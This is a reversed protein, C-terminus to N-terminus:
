RRSLEDVILLAVEKLGEMDEAEAIMDFNFDDMATESSHAKQEPTLESEWGGTRVVSIATVDRHERELVNVENPFRCDPVIFVDFEDRLGKMLESITNVWIDPVRSRVVDTGLFQLLTRGKDDKEGDWDFYEKAVFKLYDANHLILVSHGREEYEEKLFGALTDKGARAKGSITLIM